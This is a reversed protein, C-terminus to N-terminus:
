ASKKAAQPNQLGKGSLMADRKDSIINVLKKNLRHWITPFNRLCGNVPGIRIEQSFQKSPTEHDRQLVSVQVKFRDPPTDSFRVYDPALFAGCIKYLSAQHPRSSQYVKDAVAPTVGYIKTVVFNAFGIEKL